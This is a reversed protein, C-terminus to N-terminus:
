MSKSLLVIPLMTALLLLVHYIVSRIILNAHGHEDEPGGGPIMFYGQHRLTQIALFTGYLAVSAFIAFMMQTFSYTGRETALTFNPLLLSLVALPILVILFTNAGQLNHVQEMHRLGGCLLSIGILGNLVIMLVAFMMDRGLAPNQEGTLMVATIMVVEISIVSVTLILTGYPEGLKIALCDAHRVVAFSLWLMVAFLWAFLVFYVVPDSLDAFWNAGISMLVLTTVIGFWLPMESRAIGPVPSATTETMMSRLARVSTEM